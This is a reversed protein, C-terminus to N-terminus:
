RCAPKILLSGHTDRLGHLSIIPVGPAGFSGTSRKPSRLPHIPKSTADPFVRGSDEVGVAMYMHTTLQHIGDGLETPRTEM